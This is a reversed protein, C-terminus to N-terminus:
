RNPLRDGQRFTVSPGGAVPQPWFDGSAKHRTKDIYYRINVSARKARDVIKAQM